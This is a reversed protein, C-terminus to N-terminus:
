LATEVLLKEKEKNQDDLKEQILRAKWIELLTVSEAFSFDSRYVQTGNIEVISMQRSAM